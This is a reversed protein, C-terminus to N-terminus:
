AAFPLSGRAFSRLQPNYVLSRRRSRKDRINQAADNRSVSRQQSGAEGRRFTNRM